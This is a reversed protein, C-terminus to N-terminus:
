LADPDLRPETGRDRWSWLILAIVVVLFLIANFRITSFAGFHRALFGVELGGLPMMGQFVLSYVAMTRGRLEDPVEEQVLTNCSMAFAIM